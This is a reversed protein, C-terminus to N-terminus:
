FEGFRYYYAIYPCSALVMQRAAVTQKYCGANNFRRLDLPAGTLLNAIGEDTMAPCGHISLNHLSAFYKGVHKLSLNTLQKCGHLNLEELAAGGEMAQSIGLLQLGQDTFTKVGALQLRQLLPLCGVASLTADDVGQTGSM